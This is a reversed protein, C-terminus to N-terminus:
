VSKRGGAPCDDGGDLRILAAQTRSRVNLQRLLSSVHNKATGLAVGLHEAIEKNSMGQRIMALVDRQRAPLTRTPAILRALLITLARANHAVAVESVKRSPLRQQLERRETDSCAVAWDLRQLDHLAHWQGSRLLRLVPEAQAVVVTRVGYQRAFQVLEATSGAHTVGIRAATTPLCSVLGHRELWSDAAVVVRLTEISRVPSSQTRSPAGSM